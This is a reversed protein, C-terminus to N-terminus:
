IVVRKREVLLQIINLMCVNWVINMSKVHEHDIETDLKTGRFPMVIPKM